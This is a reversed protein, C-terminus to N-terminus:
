PLGLPNRTREWLPPCDISPRKLGARGPGAAEGFGAAYPTSGWPFALHARRGLRAATARLRRACERPRGGAAALLVAQRRGLALDADARNRPHLALDHHDVAGAPRPLVDPGRRRDHLRPDVQDGPLRLHRLRHGAASRHAHGAQAGRERHTAPLLRRLGPRQHRLERLDAAGADGPERRLLDGLLRQLVRLLRTALLGVAWTAVHPTLYREHVRGFTGPTAGHRAMSLLTRSSPLVTTQTSSLASLMVAIVVIKDLPSAFADGSILALVGEDETEALGDAGLWALAASAVLVYIVLLFVTSIVAARGPNHTADSTEENVAVASDWGWYAFVGLLMGAVLASVGGDIAFPSYWSAEPHVSSAIADDGIVKALVVVAFLVLGVIQITLLVYQTRASIEIGRYTLYTAAFIYAVSLMIVGTKSDRAEEWGILDYTYYAATNALLGIVIIGATLIAWGALWGMTPGLARSAWAFTTGCDPDARNLYYYATAVFLMPIFSVLLVAPLQEGVEFATFGLIAALSYAPAVSAVGITLTALFGIAGSKLGHESRGAGPGATSSAEM